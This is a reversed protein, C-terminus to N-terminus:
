QHHWRYSDREGLVAIDPLVRDPFAEQVLAMDVPVMGALVTGAPDMDPSAEERVLVTDVPVTDFYAAEVLVTDAPVTDLYAAEM